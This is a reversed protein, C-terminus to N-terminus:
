AFQAQDHEWDWIVLMYSRLNGFMTTVDWIVHNFCVVSAIKDHLEIRDDVFLSAAEANFYYSLEQLEIRDGWLYSPSLMV